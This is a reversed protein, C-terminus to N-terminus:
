HDISGFFRFSCNLYILGIILLYMVIGSAVCSGGVSIIFENTYGKHKLGVLTSILVFYYVWFLHKVPVDNRGTGKRRFAVMIRGRFQVNPIRLAEAGAGVAISEIQNQQRKFQNRGDEAQRRLSAAQREWIFSFRTVIFSKSILPATCPADWTTLPV